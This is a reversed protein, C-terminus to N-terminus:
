EVVRGHRLQIACRDESGLTVPEFGTPRVRKTAHLAICRNPKEAFVWAPVAQDADAMTVSYRDADLSYLAPKRINKSQRDPSSECM